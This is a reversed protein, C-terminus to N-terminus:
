GRPRPQEMVLQIAQNAEKIYAATPAVEARWLKDFYEKMVAEIELGRFNFPERFPLVNEVAEVFVRHLPNALLRESKFVDPRAGSTGSAGGRGEGLRIGTEKDTLWKTLEWAEGAAKSQRSVHKYDSIAISGRKGSPGKPWLFDGPEFQDRVRTAMSKWSSAGQAMGAGGNELLTQVGSKLQRQGGAIQHKFMLDYIFQMAERFRPDDMQAKKGDAAYIEAGWSRAWCHWFQAPAAM